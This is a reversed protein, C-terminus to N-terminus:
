ESTDETKEMVYLSLRLYDRIYSSDFDWGTCDKLYKIRYTLTNKHIFIKQAAKTSSMAEELYAKLTLLYDRKEEDELWMKRLMPECACIRGRGSEELLFFVAMDYFRVIKGRSAGQARVAQEFFFSLENLEYFSLSLGAVLEKKYGCNIVSLFIQESFVDPNPSYLLLTLQGRIIRAVVNPYQISVINYLLQLAKLDGTREADGFNILLVAFKGPHRKSIVAKFYEVKEPSVREGGILRELVGTNQMKESERSSAATYIAIRRSVYELLCIDGRNIKRTSELVTLKQYDKGKFSINCHLGGCPMPSGLQGSFSRLKRRYVRDAHQLAFAMYEYGEVSSQGHQRIYQWEPPMGGSGFPGAMGLLSYDSDQLMVPNGLARQLLHAVMEFDDSMIAKDVLELWDQYWDFIGQILLYGDSLSIDRIRINGQDSECLVERGVKSIYVCGPAYYPLTSNLVAEAEPDLDMDIDYEKLRNAIMWMNLKMKCGEIYMKSESQGFGDSIQM